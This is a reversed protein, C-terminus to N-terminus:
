PAGLEALETRLGPIREAQALAYKLQEEIICRECWMRFFGHSIALVGGEGYWKTTGERGCGNECMTM